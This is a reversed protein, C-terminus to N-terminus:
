VESNQLPLGQIRGFCRRRYYYYAVAQHPRIQDIHLTNTAPNSFSIKIEFTQGAADVADGIDNSPSLRRAVLYQEILYKEIRKGYAQPPFYLYMLKLFENLSLEFGFNPKKAIERIKIQRQLLMDVNELLEKIEM